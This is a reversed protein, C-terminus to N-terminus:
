ITKENKNPTYKNIIEKIWIELQDWALIDRNFGKFPSKM